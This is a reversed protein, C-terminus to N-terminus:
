KTLSRFLDMIHEGQVTPGPTRQPAVANAVTKSGLLKTAMQKEGPKLKGLYRASYAIAPLIAYLPNSGAHSAGSPSGGSRASSGQPTVAGDKSALIPNLGAAKLDAMARQHATNSMREQFDRNIQAERSNFEEMATREATAHDRALENEARQKGQSSSSSKGTFLEELDGLLQGKDSDIISGVNSTSSVKGQSGLLDGGAGSIENSMRGTNASSFSRGAVGGMAGLFSGIANLWSM